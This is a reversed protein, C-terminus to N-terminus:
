LHLLKLQERRKKANSNLYTEIWRAAGLTAIHKYGLAKLNAHRTDDACLVRYTDEKYYVFVFTDCTIM